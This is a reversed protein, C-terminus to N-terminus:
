RLLLVPFLRRHILFFGHLFIAVPCRFENFGCYFHQAAELAGSRCLYQIKSTARSLQNVNKGAPTKIYITAIRSRIPLFLIKRDCVPKARDAQAWVPQGEAFIGKIYNDTCAYQLMRLVFLVAEPIYV